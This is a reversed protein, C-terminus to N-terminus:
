LDGEEDAADEDAMPMDTTDGLDPAAV